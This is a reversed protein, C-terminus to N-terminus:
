FMTCEIYVAIDEGEKSVIVVVFTQSNALYQNTLVVNAPKWWSTSDALAGNYITKDVQKILVAQKFGEYSSVPIIVKAVWVPDIARDPQLFHVLRSHDPFILGSEKEIRGLEGLQISKQMDKNHGSCSVVFPLVLLLGFYVLYQM